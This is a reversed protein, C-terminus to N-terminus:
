PGPPPFADHGINRIARYRGRLAPDLVDTGVEVRQWWPLTGQDHQTVQVPDRDRLSRLDEADALARDLAHRRAPEGRQTGSQLLDFMSKSSINRWCTVSSSGGRPRFLSATTLFARPCCRTRIAATAAPTLATVNIPVSLRAAGPAGGPGNKPSSGDI